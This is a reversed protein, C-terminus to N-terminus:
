PISDILGQIASTLGLLDAASEPDQLRSAMSELVQVRLSPNAILATRMESWLRLFADHADRAGADDHWVRARRMRRDLFLLVELRPVLEGTHAVFPVSFQGARTAVSDAANILWRSDHVSLAVGAELDDANLNNQAEIFQGLEGGADVYAPEM